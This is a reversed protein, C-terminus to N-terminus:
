VSVAKEILSNYIKNIKITSEQQRDELIKISNFIQRFLVQLYTPPLYIGMDELFPRPVRKQGATGKMNEKCHKRFLDLKTLSFLWEALITDKPRLVYFETSGFGINNILNEAIAGKGNEMCPTIKAFLVDGNKFYTFGKSIVNKLKREEHTIIRGDNSVSAMEIFSVSTNSSVGKIRSKSPNIQCIDSLRVKSFGKDNSFPNGFMEFFLSEKITDPNKNAEQRIKRLNEAREIVSIIKDQVDLPPLPLKFQKLETANINTQAVKRKKSNVFDAFLSSHLVYNVYKPNAKKKDIRFRILYSAFIMDGDDRNFLYNLGVSGSRAIVIDGEELKYKEIVEKKRPIYKFGEKKLTGDEEIDTIRLFVIGKNDETAKATYGYNCSSILEGFSKWEYSRRTM